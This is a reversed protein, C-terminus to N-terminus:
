VSMSYKRQAQSSSIKIVFVPTYTIPLLLIRRLDRSKRKIKEKNAFVECYYQLCASIQANERFKVTNTNSLIKPSIRFNQLVVFLLTRRLVTPHPRAWYPHPTTGNITRRSSTRAPGLELRPEGGWTPKKRQALQSHPSPAFAHSRVITRCSHSQFVTSYYSFTFFLRFSYCREVLYEFLRDFM